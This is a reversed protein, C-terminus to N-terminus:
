VDMEIYAEERASLRDNLVTIIALGADFASLAANRDDRDQETDLICDDHTLREYAAGVSKVARSVFWQTQRLEGIKM